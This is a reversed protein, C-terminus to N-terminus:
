GNSILLASGVACSMKRCNLFGPAGMFANRFLLPKVSMSSIITTAMMPMRAAMATGFKMLNWAFDFCDSAFVLRFATNM